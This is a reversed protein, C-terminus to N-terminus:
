RQGIAVLGSAIAVIQEQVVAAAAEVPAGFQGFQFAYQRTETAAVAGSAADAVQGGGSRFRSPM